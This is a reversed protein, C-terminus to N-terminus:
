HAVRFAAIETRLAAIQDQLETSEAILMGDVFLRRVFGDYILVLHQKRGPEFVQPVVMSGRLGGFDTESTRMRFVIAHGKQGLTFNRNLSDRALGFINAAGFQNLSDTQLVIELSMQGSSVLADYVRRVDRRGELSADRRIHVAEGEFQIDSPAYQLGRIPKFPRFAYFAMVLLYLVALIGIVVRRM